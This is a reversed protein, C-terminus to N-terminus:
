KDKNLKVMFPMIAILLIFGINYYLPSYSAEVLGRLVYSITTLGLLLGLKDDNRSFYIIVTKISLYISLILISLGAIIGADYSLQLYINHAHVPINNQRKYDRDLERQGLVGLRKIYDKWIKLRGSLIGNVDEKEKKEDEISFRDFLKFVNTKKEEEKDAKYFLPVQKKNLITIAKYYFNNKFDSKSRYTDISNVKNMFLVFMFTIFLVYLINIIQKLIQKKGKVMIIYTYYFFLLVALVVIITRTETLLIMAISIGVIFNSYLKVLFNDSIYSLYLACIIFNLSLVAVAAPNFSLAHYRIGAYPMWIISLLYYVFALIMNSYIFRNVINKFENLNSLRFIVPNILFIIILTLKLRGFGATFSSLTWFISFITLPLVIWFNFNKLKIEVKENKEKFLILFMLIFFISFTFEWIFGVSKNLIGIGETFLWLFSMNNLIFQLSLLFAGLYSMRRLNNKSFVSSIKYYLSDIMFYFDSIFKM